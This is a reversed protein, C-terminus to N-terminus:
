DRDHLVRGRFSSIRHLGLLVLGNDAPEQLLDKLPTVQPQRVFEEGGVVDKVVGADGPLHLARLAYLSVHGHITGGERVRAEGDLVLYGFSVLHYGAPCSPARVLALEHADGGVPSLTVTAPM